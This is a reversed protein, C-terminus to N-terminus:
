SRKVNNIGGRYPVRPSSLRTNELLQEFVTPVRCRVTELRSLSNDDVYTCSWKPTWVNAGCISNTVNRCTVRLCGCVMAYKWIRKIKKQPPPPKFFIITASPDSRPKTISQVYYNQVATRKTISMSKYNQFFDCVHCIHVPNGPSM